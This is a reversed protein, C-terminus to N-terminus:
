AISRKAMKTVVKHSIRLEVYFMCKLIIASDPLASGHFTKRHELPAAFIPEGASDRGSIFSYAVGSANQSTQPLIM